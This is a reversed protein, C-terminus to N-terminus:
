SSHVSLLTFLQNPVLYQIGSHLRDSNYYLEIYTVITRAADDFGLNRIDPMECELTRWFSEIPQNDSPTGPRSMSKRFGCREVQEKTKKATYQCGRDSHFIAGVPREPNRGVAMRIADQVLKQTQTKAISWGVIRRTAVDIIGCVYLKTGRCKLETIDSCWLYNAMVVKFKDRILNEELYQLQGPTTKKRTGTRGNKAELGNRRLIRSIKYESVSIGKALLEKRIRIRGYRAHNQRFSHVVAQELEKEEHDGQRRTKYFSSRSVGLMECVKSVNYEKLEEKAFSM